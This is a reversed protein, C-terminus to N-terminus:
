QKLHNWITQFRELDKCIAQLRNLYILKMRFKRMIYGLSNEIITFNTIYDFGDIIREFQKVCTVNNQTTRVSVMEYSSYIINCMNRLRGLEEM